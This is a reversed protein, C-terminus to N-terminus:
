ARNWLTRHASVDISAEEDVVTWPVDKPMPSGLKQFVFLTSFLPSDTKLWERIKAIPTFQHKILEVNLDMVRKLLQENTGLVVYNVPLTVLCPFVAGGAESLTSRGSLVVGCTVTSEGTYAALLKAWAAQCAAQLSVKAEKCKEQLADLSSQSTFTAQKQVPAERAHLPNLDPLKTVNFDSLLSSWFDKSKMDNALAENIITEQIGRVPVPEPLTQSTLFSSVDSLILGLSQADYLAHLASFQLLHGSSDAQLTVFWPPVHLQSLATKALNSRLSALEESGPKLCASQRWPLGFTGDTYTAAAFPIGKEGTHFFGTRLMDHRHMAREWAARIADSDVGAAYKLVMHNFYVSGESSMFLALMGSQVPTCPMVSKIASQSLSAAQCLKPKQSDEYGAFNFAQKSSNLEDVQPKRLAQKLGYVSPHELVDTASVCYGLASLQTAIQLANISDLGLQFITTSPSIHSPDVKALNALLRRIDETEPTLQITSEEGDVIGGLSDEGSEQPPKTSRLLSLEDRTLSAPDSAQGYPYFLTHNLLRSFVSLFVEVDSHSIISRNYHFTLMLQDAKTDPVVECILPMDMGGSEKLMRWIGHNLDGSESQLLVLTDFLGPGELRLRSRLRRLSTLQHPLIKANDDRLRQILNLNSTNAGVHASIPLTNFCPGVIEEIGEIPLNRGSFVTGFCLDSSATIQHLMKTWAAQLVSLLTTSMHKCADLANRLTLDAVKSVMQFEARESTAKRHSFLRMPQINALYGEWFHLCHDNESHIMYRILREFPVPPSLPKKQVITEVERLLLSMAHADYMAHHISIRLFSRSQGQVVTLMYPVIQGEPLSTERMAQIEAQADDGVREIQWPVSTSDLVAQVFVFNVNNTPVFISRLIQHRGVAAQWAAELDGVDCFIEFVLTNQYASNGERGVLMAEQLATCPLIKEVKSSMSGLRGKVDRIIDPDIVTEEEQIRTEQGELKTSRHCYNALQAVTNHRLIESVDLQGHGSSKLLKSFAIASISDLGLSFFSTHKHVDELPVKTIQAVCRVISLELDSLEEATDDAALDCSYENLDKQSLSSLHKVVAERDKKGSTNLPFSQLPLLISPVMYAPLSLRLRSFLEKTADSTKCGGAATEASPVWFSILQEGEGDKKPIVLTMSDKVSDHSLLIADIEGLEVRQGRLKVQDDKRGLYRLSGDPLLRGFDGSRYIRGYQPHMIFRKETLEPMNIYGQAIQDGGFCLEGVAGLPVLSFADNEALLFLSTNKLPLGLDAAYDDSNIDSKLTVINTTESPGYGQHLAKGAWRRQVQPTLPEGACVLFQVSPVNSP